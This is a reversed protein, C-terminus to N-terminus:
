RYRTIARRAADVYGGSFKIAHVVLPAIQHLTVREEWGDALPSTEHYAAFAEDGFGGFLRMMALDFERHGGHAAPDILVSRGHTDVLCNGAWLDGHLRSPPEDDIGFQDLRGALTELDTITSPNLSHSEAAMRALPLLRQSGYFESWSDSPENPLRRSGTTALDQRGFCPAGSRHLAALARGFRDDTRSDAVGDDIWELVLYAPGGSRDDDVAWVMPTRVADADAIWRLSSAETEFFAPPPSPHTKAFASRGDALHIRFSDAVDGGSVRRISVVATGLRQGVRNILEHHQQDM